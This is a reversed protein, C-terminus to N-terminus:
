SNTGSELSAGLRRMLPVFDPFSTAIMHGEDITVPKEAGFGMVIFSMAIRHDMHTAVHGGGPVRGATGTVAMWDDFEEVHLGNVRLGA